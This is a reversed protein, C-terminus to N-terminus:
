RTGGEGTMAPFGSQHGIPAADIVARLKRRARALRMRGAVASCGLSRAAEAVSLGDDAVLLFLEREAPTL